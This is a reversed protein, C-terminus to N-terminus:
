SVGATSNLKSQFNCSFSPFCTAVFCISSASSTCGQCVYKPVYKTAPSSENKIVSPTSRAQLLQALHRGEAMAGGMKKVFCEIHQRLRSDISHRHPYSQGAFGKPKEGKGGGRWTSDVVSQQSTEHRREKAAALALPQDLHLARTVAAPVGDAWGVAKSGRTPPTNTARPEFCVHEATM